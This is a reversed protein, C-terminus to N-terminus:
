SFVCNANQCQRWKWQDNARFGGGRYGRGRGSSSTFDGGGARCGLRDCGAFNQHRLSWRANAILRPRDRRTRSINPFGAVPTPGPGTVDPNGPVPHRSWPCSGNPDFAVPGAPRTAPDPDRAVPLLTQRVPEALATQLLLPVTSQAVGHPATEDSRAAFRGAMMRNQITGSQPMNWADAM